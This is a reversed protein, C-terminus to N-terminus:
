CTWRYLIYLM